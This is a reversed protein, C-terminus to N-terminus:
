SVGPPPGGRTWARDGQIYYSWFLRPSLPLPLMPLTLPLTLLPLPSIHPSPLGGSGGGTCFALVDVPDGPPWQSSPLSLPLPPLPFRRPLTCPLLSGM